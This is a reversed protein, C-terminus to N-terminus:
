NDDRMVRYEALWEMIEAEHEVNARIRAAAERMKQDRTNQVYVKLAERMAESQSQQNLNAAELFQEKLADDVRLSMLSAM